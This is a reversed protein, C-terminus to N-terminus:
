EIYVSGGHHRLYEMAKAILKPDDNFNALGLNCGMCLLSRVKDTKHDHDTHADSPNAFPEECIACKGNQKQLMAMWIEYGIHYNKKIMSKRSREKALIPNANRWEKAYIGNCTKCWSAKGDKANGSNVFESTLKREKCKSCRKLGDNINEILKLEMGRKEQSPTLKNIDNITTDNKLLNKKYLKQKRELSNMYRTNAAIGDESKKYNKRREKEEPTSMKKIRQEKEKAKYEPNLRKERIREKNKNKDKYPM